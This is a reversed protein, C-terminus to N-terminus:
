NLSEGPYAATVVAIDAKENTRETSADSEVKAADCRDPIAVGETEKDVNHMLGVDCISECSHFLHVHSQESSGFLM